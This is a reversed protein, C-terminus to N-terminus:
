PRPLVVEGGGQKSASEKKVPEAAKPHELKAKLDKLLQIERDLEEKSYATEDAKRAEKIRRVKDGQEKVQDELGSVDSTTMMM